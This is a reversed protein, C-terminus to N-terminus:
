FSKRILKFKVHMSKTNLEGANIFSLIAEPFKILIKMRNIRRITNPVSQRSLKENANRTESLKTGADISATAFKFFL